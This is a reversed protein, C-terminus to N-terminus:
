SSSFFSGLRAATDDLTAKLKAEEAPSLPLLPLRSAGGVFGRGQLDLARKVAPPGMEATVLQNIDVLISQLQMAEKLLQKSDKQKNKKQKEEDNTTTTTAALFLEHLHRLEEPYLNALAMVGGDAGVTLAQLFFAGSGALVAFDKGAKARQLPRKIHEVLQALQVISGTTDKIGVINPHAALEKILSLSMKVGGALPPVNYLIIPISSASAVREYHRLLQKDNMKDTFYYPTVIMAADYGLAAAEQTLQITEKTSVCGTGAIMRFDKRDQPAHEAEVVKKATTLVQVKESATLSPFEGNSGLVVLGSLGRSSQSYLAVNAALAEYDVSEDGEASATFPITIPPLLGRFPTPGGVSFLRSPSQSLWPQHFLSSQSSGSRPAIGRCTALGLAGLGQRKM